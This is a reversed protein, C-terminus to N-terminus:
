IVSCANGLKVNVFGNSTILLKVVLFLSGMRIEICTMAYTMTSQVKLPVPSAPSLIM